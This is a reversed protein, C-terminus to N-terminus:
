AFVFMLRCRVYFIIQWNFYKSPNYKSCVISFYPYKGYFNDIWFFTMWPYDVIMFSDLWLPRWRTNTIAVATHYWSICPNAYLVSCADTSFLSFKLPIPMLKLWTNRKLKWRKVGFRLLFEGKITVFIMAFGFGNLIGCVVNSFMWQNLFHNKITVIHLWLCRTSDVLQQWMFVVLHRM